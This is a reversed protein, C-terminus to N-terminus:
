KRSENALAKATIEHYLHTVRAFLVQCEPMSHILHRNAMADSLVRDLFGMDADTLAEGANVREQIALLYPLRQHEFRTILTDAIGAHQSSNLM